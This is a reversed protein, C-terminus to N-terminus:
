DNNTPPLAPPALNALFGDPRTPDYSLFSASSTHDSRTGSRTGRRGRSSRIRSGWFPAFKDSGATWLNTVPSYECHACRHRGLGAPRGGSAAIRDLKAMYCDSGYTHATCPQFTTGSGYFTRATLLGPDTAPETSSPSPQFGPRGRIRAARGNSTGSSAISGCPACSSSGTAARHREVLIRGAQTTPPGTWENSSNFVDNATKANMEGSAPSVIQACLADITQGSPNTTGDANGKWVQGFIYSGSIQVWQGPDITPLAM